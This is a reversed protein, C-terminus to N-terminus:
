ATLKSGVAGSGESAPLAWSGPRAGPQQQKLLQNLQECLPELEGLYKDYSRPLGERGLAWVGIPDGDTRELMPCPTGNGTGKEVGRVFRLAEGPQVAWSRFPGRIVLGEPGIWLGATAVRWAVWACPGAFVLFFVVANLVNAEGGADASSSALQLALAFDFAIMAFIAALFGHIRRPRKLWARPEVTPIEAPQALSNM